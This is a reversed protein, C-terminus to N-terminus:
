RMHRSSSPAVGQLPSRISTSRRAHSRIASSRAFMASRTRAWRLPSRTSYTPGGSPTPDLRRDHPAKRHPRGALSRDEIAPRGAGPSTRRPPAEAPSTRGGLRPVSRAWGDSGGPQRARWAGRSPRTASADRPDLSGCGSRRLGATRSASSHMPRRHKARELSPRTRVANKGTRPDAVDTRRVSRDPVVSSRPPRRHRAGRRPPWAGEHSVGRRAEERDRRAGRRDISAPPRRETREERARRARRPVRLDFPCSPTATTPRRARAALTRSPGFRPPRAASPAGGRAPRDRSSRSRRAPSCARGVGRSMTSHSCNRRRSTRRARAPLARRPERVRRAM